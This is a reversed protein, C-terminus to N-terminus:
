AGTNEDFRPHFTGPPVVASGRLHFLRVPDYGVAELTEERVVAGARESLAIVPHRREAVFRAVTVAHAAEFHPWVSAGGLLDLGDTYELGVDNRDGLSGAPDITTGLIIAGASGGSIIGGNEAFATLALDFGAARIRQLLYYTNGGGIYIAAFPRLDALTKGRLTDWMVVEGVGLPDFVSRAWAYAVSYSSREPDLALPLYLIPRGRPVFEAMRRDLPLSDARDGGGAIFIPGRRTAQSM